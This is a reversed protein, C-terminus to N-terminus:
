YFVSAVVKHKYKQNNHLYGNNYLHLTRLLDGGAEKHYRKLIRLGLDINYEIDFIQTSNIDLEDKWVMYNVQMLGYAGRSSVAQPKFNSEIQILSLILNPSFGYEKSKNYVVDVIKSFVPYKKRVVTDRYKLFDLMKLEKSQGEIKEKIENQQSTLKEINKVQDGNKLSMNIMIWLLVVVVMSLSMTILFWRKQTM